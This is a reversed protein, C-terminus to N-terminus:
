APHPKGQVFEAYQLDTRNTHTLFWETVFLNMDVIFQVKREQILQVSLEKLRNLIQQHKFAHNALGPFDIKKMWAEESSFHYRCYRFLFEIARDIETWDEDSPRRSILKETLINVGIIRNMLEMHEQDFQEIGTKRLRQRLSNRLAALDHESKDDMSKGLARLTNQTVPSAMPRCSPQDKNGGNSFRAYDMDMQNIHQFLWGIVLHFLDVVYVISEQWIRAELDLLSKVFVQHADAHAALHPYHIRSMFAEEEQFHRKAYEKLERLTHRLSTVSESDPAGKQLKRVEAYLPVMLEVLQEHQAHMAPITVNKLRAHISRRFDELTFQVNSENRHPTM